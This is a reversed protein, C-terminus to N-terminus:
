HTEAWNKGYAFNGALPCRFNFYEGARRISGTAAEGVIKELGDLVEIQFEDHVNAVFEYDAGSTYGSGVLAKDLDVLAQKMVVAGASQLLTNLAAHAARVPLHRGDIGVLFGASQAKAKVGEVLAGLTPFGTLFRKRDYAGRKAAAQDRYYNGRVLTKAGRVGAIWGLNEDGSGYLWAYFWTKVTSRDLGLIAANRTHMDTGDDKNGKLITEIFAGNDYRALYHALCRMELADADVGVLKMGPPAIFLSRCEKGYEADVGPVNAMNPEKHTMRGTVAGNTVVSGHIRDGKLARLWSKRGESLAGIRKEVMLYTTLLKAEPWELQGLVDDDIKAKGTDTMESPVWGYKAKLRDAIHDRSSPNFEVIRTRKTLVGKVHGHKSNNSKPIISDDVTLPPFAEKLQNVLELRRQVLDAHLKYAAEKDVMFGRQEQRLIIKAVSHELATAVPWGWEDLKKKEKTWLAATVELDQLCYSVMEATIKDWPGKFAGKLVGLRAGWAELSHSGVYKGPVKGRKFSILDQTKIDSWLLRSILLTDITEANHEWLPYLKKIVALDYKIINHGILKEAGALLALGDNIAAGPAGDSTFAQSVGTTLDKVGIIHITTVDDLLNDTELDFIYTTM